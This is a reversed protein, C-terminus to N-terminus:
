NVISSASPADFLDSLGPVANWILGIIGDLIAVFFRMLYGFIDTIASIIAGPMQIIATGFNNSCGGFMYDVLDLILMAFLFKIVIKIVTAIM